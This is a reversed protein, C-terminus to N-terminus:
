FHFCSFTHPLTISFPFNLFYGSIWCYLNSILISLICRLSRSSWYCVWLLNMNAPLFLLSWHLFLHCTCLPLLAFSCKSIKKQFFFFYINGALSISFLVSVPSVAAIRWCIPFYKLFPCNGPCMHNVLISGHLCPFCSCVLLSYHHQILLFIELLSFVLIM